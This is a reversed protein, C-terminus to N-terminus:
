DFFDNKPDLYVNYDPLYFDPTYHHLKDNIIYPIRDCRSWKINNDDLDKAVVVEYSSDLKIGNYLYGKRWRFGGFGNNLAIERLKHKSEKTQPKGYKTHKGLTHNQRFTESSKQVRTDTEKTLGKNWSKIEILGNIKVNFGEIDVCIRNENKNCRIEHQSLSKKSKCVKGCHKCLLDDHDVHQQKQRKDYNGNNHCRIHKSINSKSIELGCFECVVKKVGM